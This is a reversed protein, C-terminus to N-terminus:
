DQYVNGRPDIRDVSILRKEWEISYIVRISGVRVRYVNDRGRLKIVDFDHYPVPESELVDLLKLVSNQISSQLKELGKFARKKVIVRYM